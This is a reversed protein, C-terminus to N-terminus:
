ARRNISVLAKILIQGRATRYGPRITEVIVGDPIQPNQIERGVTYIVPDLHELPEAAFAIGGMNEMLADISKLLDGSEVPVSRRISALDHLFSSM